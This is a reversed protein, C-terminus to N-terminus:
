AGTERRAENNTIPPPATGTPEADGPAPAREIRKAPLRVAFTSGRGIESAIDLEAQHRLLVHKVIALGLGTGGTARSRSRDIRYFRETLRPLHEAAIGIGSDSVSFIGAGDADVRWAIAIRGGPPTYRVANSVLNGFASSLEERGGVVTAADGIDLTVEHQGKSLAKAEASLELMLPVVAFSEEALPNHESELASLTILDVVLRQMNKAQEQMLQLFRGRQRPDLEMDQMTEIFGSIVTLPTKLEHSVNAIFDRRMRAVAELQTVDRSMLMKKDLSFPVLQLALTTRADRGSPVVIPEGYDGAELYGLFEPQRVLNVIPQGIDHDLDLGLQVLSRPNAWEIRNNKDLVVIGDPIAEAAQQFRAIMHKLDRQHAFRIRVRKYMAAFAPAWTGRGVPVQADLPGAAWDTLQQLYYLHFGIIAAAGAALVALAWGSGAIGWVVLAVLAVIGPAVLGQRVIPKV